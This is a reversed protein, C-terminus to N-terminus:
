GQFKFRVETRPFSYPIGDVVARSYIDREAEPLYMGSTALLQDLHSRIEGVDKGEAAGRLHSDIIEAIGTAAQKAVAAMGRSSMKVKVAPKRGM